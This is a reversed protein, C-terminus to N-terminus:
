SEQIRGNNKQDFLARQRAYEASEASSVDIKWCARNGVKTRIAKLKGSNVLDAVRQKSLGLQRSAEIIGVWGCPAEGQALRQRVADTLLIRWPAGPTAQRGALLGDRLWRHITSMTVGLEVAAEDATFPGERPDRAPNAKCVPIQNKGRLSMVSSKTFPNGVGSKRGQKNLIRAIQTDDFEEALKRVLNVTEDPTACAAGAAVRPVSRDTTAGGKWVIRVLYREAETTLQVEDIVCRLLQKRDRNTTTAATWVAELDAGLRAVRRLEEDSLDESRGQAAQAKARVAELESLRVNWRRELERAVPRNEPEVTQYQREARTAEYEAKEIQLKWYREREERDRRVVQAAQQAAAVAAPRAVQLLEEIVAQDIRKGGILQCEPGLAKNRVTGCRYQMTRSARESRHGGYSVFMKRGCKGCRVVGQLLAAGERAPSSETNSSGQSMMANENIRQQIELYQDFSVYAEHHDHILVPWEERLTRRTRLRRPEDPDLERVTMSRGFVYAGSYIPHRLTRFVMAYMPERWEIPHLRGNRVRVPFKRGEAHWWIFVQRASGLEAFKSFVTKIAAVVAEDCSMVIQGLDDLDYGAPPPYHLEGRRAKSWRAEVMRHVSNDRELESVQGRVGLVMRDASDAPDYVGHEDAILTGTWRCMYLLHSWDPSNRALRSMELSIVIGVECRAVAGVLQLFGERANPTVGSKGQDEDIVKVQERCWGMAVAREAMDYQRRTSEVNTRVQELSSQRVYVYAARELHRGTVKSSVEGITPKM